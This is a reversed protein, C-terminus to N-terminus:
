DVSKLIEGFFSKEPFTAWWRGDSKWMDIYTISGNISDAAENIYLVVLFGSLDEKVYEVEWLSGQLLSSLEILEQKNIDELLEINPHVGKIFADYNEQELHNLLEYAANKVSRKQLLDYTTLSGVAIIITILVGLAIRKM